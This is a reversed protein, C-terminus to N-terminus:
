EDGDDYCVYHPKNTMEDEGDKLARIKKLTGTFFEKDHAWWISIRSGVELKAIKERKSRLKVTDQKIFTDPKTSRRWRTTALNMWKIDGDDYEVLVRNDDRPDLDSLAGKYWQDDDPWYVTVGTGIELDSM